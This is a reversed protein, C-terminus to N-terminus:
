SLKYSFCEIEFPIDSSGKCKANLHLYLVRNLNTYGCNVGSVQSLFMTSGVQSRPLARRCVIRMM